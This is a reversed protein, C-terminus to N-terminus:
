AGSINVVAIVKSFLPVISSVEVPFFLVPIYAFTEALFVATVVWTWYLAIFEPLILRIPSESENDFGLTPINVSIDDAEVGDFETGSTKRLFTPSPVPLPVIFTPLYPIPIYPNLNSVLPDLFAM